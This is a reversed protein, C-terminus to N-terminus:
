ISWAGAKYGVYREDEGVGRERLGASTSVDLSRLMSTCDLEVSLADFHLVVDRADAVILRIGESM